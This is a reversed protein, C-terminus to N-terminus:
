VDQCDEKKKARCTSLPLTSTSGLWTAYIMGSLQHHWSKITSLGCDRLLTKVYTM